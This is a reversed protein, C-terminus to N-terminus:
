KPFFGATITVAIINYFAHTGATIGFGRIAYLIAFYIGAITRFAFETVEFPDMANPRGSFFDIHHYASFLGASVLVALVISNIHSMRFIDQFLIMLVCILILRFVLEEYIGAGIGTVINAMLPQTAAVNRQVYNSSNAPSSVTSSCVPM